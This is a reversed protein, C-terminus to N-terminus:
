DKLMDQMKGAGAMGSLAAAGFQQNFGAWSPVERAPAAIATDKAKPILGPTTIRAVHIMILTADALDPSDSGTRRKYDTKSEVTLKKGLGVQMGGVRAALEAFVKLDVGKGIRIIDFEFLKAAEFWLASAQINYMERPSATDEAAIRISSPVSAYEIGHIKALTEGNPLPGVKQAWQHRIIDHVGRQGTMDVGFGDPQVGLPKLPTMYDDALTQSDGRTMVSVADIQIVVKPEELLHRDGAFDIWGVAVGTRGCALAPRDGVFAPDAGAKGVTRDSFIWEGESARLHASKIVQNMLGDKPFRGYIFTFCIPSQPDGGGQTRIIKQVGEYTALRPFITKRQVVNESRMANLSIVHWGNQGEWEEHDDSIADWGGIPKCNQGYPSWESKPNAAAFVKMHETSNDISALLNPIEDFISSSIEQAEDLIIRVRSNSGFIPHRPRNKVKTGKLKGRAMPGGPIALIFIGMARNKKLSISESDVKGPLELVSESHLRVIDAYANKKVHDLSNSCLQVRTWEPDLLWDLLVWACASFTKSTSAGGMVNVLNKDFLAGWVLQSFHPDPTFTNVGWLIYAASVYDRRSLFCYLYAWAIKLADGDGRFPRQLDRNKKIEPIFEPDHLMLAIAKGLAIKSGDTKYEALSAHIAQLLAKRHPPPIILPM